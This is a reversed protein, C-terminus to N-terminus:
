PLDPSLRRTAGVAVLAATSSAGFAATALVLTRITM